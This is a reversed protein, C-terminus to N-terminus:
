CWGGTTSGASSCQAGSMVSTFRSLHLMWELIGGASPCGLYRPQSRLLPTPTCFTSDVPLPPSLPFALTIVPFYSQPRFSSFLSCRRQIRGPGRSFAPAQVLSKNRKSEQKIQNGHLQKVHASAAITTSVGEKEGAKEKPCAHVYM